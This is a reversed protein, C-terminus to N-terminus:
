EAVSRCLLEWARQQLSDCQSPLREFLADVFGMLRAAVHAHGRLPAIAAAYQVAPSEDARSKELVVKVASAAAATEGLLLHLWALAQNAHYVVDPNKGHASKSVNKRPL